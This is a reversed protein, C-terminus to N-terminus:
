ILIILYIILKKKQKIKEMIFTLGNEVEERTLVGDNNKDLEM